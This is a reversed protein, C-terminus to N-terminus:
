YDEHLAILAPMRFAGSPHQEQARIRAVRGVFAGPDGNARTRLEDSLGSGIEGVTPGGPKLAYTFGGIGRGQYKGQGPFSGTIHVDHEQFLKAKTPQGVPPHIVMGEHTLPHKGSTIQQWLQKGGEPTTEEQPMDFVGEPLYPMVQDMVKRREAYPVTAPSLEKKGISAADFLQNHLERGTAKQTKLSNEITSNLLGGTTQPPLVTGDPERAYTEGRLTTGELSKPYDVKPRGGFVRETHFIPADTRKSKRYSLVEVGGKMLKVLSHAGDIKAQYSTGAQMQDIMPEVQEAPIVKFHPKEGPPSETPTNNMLLWQREGFKGQPKFLVFREPTASDATTFEIKTPNANTILIRGKKERRVTGQGYGPGLTGQFAGYAHAHLPQQNALVKQGPAPLGPSRMAWSYLGRERDGIRLDRHTGARVADHRQIILDIIENPSLKSLDGMDKRDPIGQFGPGVAEKDM